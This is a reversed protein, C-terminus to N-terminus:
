KIIVSLEEDQEKSPREGILRELNSLIRQVGV